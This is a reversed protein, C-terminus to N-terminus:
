EDGRYLKRGFLFAAIALVIALVRLGTEMETQFGGVILLTVSVNSM